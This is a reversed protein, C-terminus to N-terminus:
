LVSGADADTVVTHDVCGPERYPGSDCHSGPDGHM